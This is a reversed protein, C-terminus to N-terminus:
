TSTVPFGFSHKPYMTSTPGNNQIQVRVPIRPPAGLPTSRSSNEAIIMRNKRRYVRRHSMISCRDCILNQCSNRNGIFSYRIEVQEIQEIKALGRLVSTVIKVKDMMANCDYDNCTASINLPRNWLRVAVGSATGHQRLSLRHVEKFYRLVEQM